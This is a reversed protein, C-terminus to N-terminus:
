CKFLKTERLIHPSLGSVVDKIVWNPIFISVIRSRRPIWAFIFRLALPGPASVRLYVMFLV